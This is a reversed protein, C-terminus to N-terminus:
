EWKRYHLWVWTVAAALIFVWFLIEIATEIPTVGPLLFLSVSQVFLATVVTMFLRMPVGPKHRNRYTLGLWTILATNIFIGSTIDFVEGASGGGRFLVHLVGSVLMAAALAVLVRTLFQM